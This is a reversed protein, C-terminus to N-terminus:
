GFRDKGLAYVTVEGIRLFSGTATTEWGAPERDV